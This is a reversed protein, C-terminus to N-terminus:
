GSVVGEELGAVVDVAVVVGGVERGVLGLLHRVLVGLLGDYGAGGDECHFVGGADGDCGVVEGRVAAQRAECVDM